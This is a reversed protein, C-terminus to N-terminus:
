IYINHFPSLISCFASNFITFLVIIKFFFIQIYLYLFVTWWFSYYCLTLIINFDSTWQKHTSYTLPHGKQLSLGFNKAQHDMKPTWFSWQSQRKKCCNSISCCTVLCIVNQQRRLFIRCSALSLPLFVYKWAHNERKKTCHVGRTGIFKFICYFLFFAFSKGRQYARCVHVRWDQNDHWSM